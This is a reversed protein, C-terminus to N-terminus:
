RYHHVLQQEAALWDDRDRGPQRGRREYLDHALAEIEDRTPHARGDGTSKGMLREGTLHLGNEAAALAQAITTALLAADRLAALDIFHLGHAFKLNQIKSKPNDPVGPDRPLDM